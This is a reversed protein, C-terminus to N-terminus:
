VGYEIKLAAINAAHQAKRAEYQARITAMKVAEAPGDALLTLAFADNLKAIDTQYNLNLVDLSQKYTLPKTDILPTGDVFEEAIGPQLNEFIGIILGDESRLVYPM